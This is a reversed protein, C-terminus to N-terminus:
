ESTQGSTSAETLNKLGSEEPTDHPCSLIDIGVSHQKNLEVQELTEGQNNLDITNAAENLCNQESGGVPSNSGGKRIVHVTNSDNQPAAENSEYMHVTHTSDHYEVQKSTNDPEVNNTLQNSGSLQPADSLQSSESQEPYDAINLPHNMGETVLSTATSEHVGDTNKLNGADCEEPEEGAKMSKEEKVLKRKKGPTKSEVQRSTKEMNNCEKGSHKSNIHRNLYGMQAFTRNCSPCPYPQVGLHHQRRHHGLASSWAFTKPCFECKFPKAEEHQKRHERLNVSWYFEKDCVECKYHKNGTHTDMHRKLDYSQSYAKPCLSCKFPKEGTHTRRHCILSSYHSLTKNCIECQVMKYSDDCVHHTTKHSKLGPMTAYKKQCQDCEHPKVALHTAKHLKLSSPQSFRKQCTSCEYPKEGTHTRWHYRLTTLGTFSKGCMTCNYPKEGTHKRKHYKLDASKFYAKPCVDCRYPREGTHKRKHRKLDGKQSCGKGCVDCIYPKEGTHMREHRVLQHPQAFSKSCHNCKYVKRNKKGGPLVTNVMVDGYGAGVDMSQPATETNLEVYETAPQASIGENALSSLLSADEVCPQDSVLSSNIDVSANNQNTLSASLAVIGEQAVVAFSQSTSVGDGVAQNVMTVDAQSRLAEQVANVIDSLGLHVLNPDADNEIQKDQQMLQTSNSEVMQASAETIMSIQKEALAENSMNDYQMNGQLVRLARTSSEETLYMTESAVEYNDVVINVGTSAQEETAETNENDEQLLNRSDESM